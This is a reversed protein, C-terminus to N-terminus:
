ATDIYYSNKVAKYSNEEFKRVPQQVLIPILTLQALADVLDDHKALIKDNTILNMEELLETVFSSIYGDPLWLKGNNVIPQLSKIVSLKSNKHQPRSVMDIGFYIGQRVMEQEMFTKMSTQFAVKELVVSYPRYMKVFEFVRQITEDPKVRGFFGDILFWDANDNVGIVAIVTYDASDKQSIALDVSIYYTFNPLQEKIAMASYRRIKDTEFLLNEKPAIQLMFEQWFSTLKNQSAYLGYMTRLYSVTFRDSWASILPEDSEGKIIAATLNEAAPLQIFAFEYQKFFEDDGNGELLNLLLADAHIPTGIFDIEFKNPNVAPIVANFFWNKLKERSEKSEVNEDNEIDDLLIINPRKGMIRTGRMKQGAGRGKFYITRNLDKNWIYLTPDDGLRSKRIELHKALERNDELIGILQEFNAGVQSVTDMIYLVYDVKGFNPKSGKFAIYLLHYIGILTSKALGRSCEFGKFRQKGFLHDMLQFHSEASRNEEDFYTNLWIFFEITEKRPMYEEDYRTREVIM